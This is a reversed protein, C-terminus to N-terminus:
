NAASSKASKEISGHPKEGHLAVVVELEDSLADSRNRDDRLRRDPRSQQLARQVAAPYVTTGKIKMAQDKRGLIPGIRPTWRGCACQEHTMFTIDGTAFRILPM